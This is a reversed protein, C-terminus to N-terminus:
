LALAQRELEEYTLDGWKNPLRMATVRFPFRMESRTGDVDRQTASFVNFALGDRGTLDLPRADLPYAPMLSPYRWFNPSDFTPATGFEFYYLRDSRDSGQVKPVRVVPFM